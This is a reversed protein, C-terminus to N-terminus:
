VIATDYESMGVEFIAAIKYGKMRPTTGIPTVDGDPSILTITDGLTLGLNEAMRKGIAVGDGSDFDAISGQKINSAVIAIKSLDEGRIGRVLAGTGGGVNGQALVQGDILPIAYKVGSVGNIRSAVQAYDELPSDLPQVILHGNVGLIRTLLEARFGNMVAMVVILTAVGLMIGLFSISAIVSIVTEKRRSRLYRWAVMREFISFPGAGVPRAAVAENM